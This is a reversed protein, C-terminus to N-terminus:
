LFPKAIKLPFTLGNLYGDGGMKRRKYILMITMNVLVMGPSVLALIKRGTEVRVTVGTVGM